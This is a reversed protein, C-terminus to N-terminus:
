NACADQRNRRPKRQRTSKRLKAIIDPTLIIWRPHHPAEQISELKGSLCWDAVTSVDVNLLEAVQRASFRGSRDLGPPKPQSPAYKRDMNYGWRVWQVKSETFSGGFGSTHGENNLIAAIDRDTHDIALERVRAVVDPHTRHADYSRPPRPVTLPTCTGTQWRVVLNIDSDRKTLTVDKILFRLLQKHIVHTTTPAHWLTPLDTALALIRQCQDASLLQPSKKPLAAYEAQLREVDALKSNWEHELTRAVLRNEPDVSSFRRKALDAEYRVRELRLQWQQDIQQAQSELQGLTALSIELQAPQIAELFVRTVASDIGDGRIFQCLPVGAQNHSQNCEYSPINGNKSYRVGMRRGCKGCLVIGQLLAAGERAAGRRDAARYTRNDDLQEQHHMFQQWTIYAPHVDHLVIPWEKLAVQRTHGKIRLSEGPLPRSRTQTRGYVYTGAYAPNHLVELVRGHHLSEWVLEGAHAKGWLRTPFRLHHEAFHKVVQYASGLQDFVRFLLKLACQVEEDPDLVIQGTSNLVFGAPPRFRLQGQEAKKLKGGALRSRLWHLEAESMTGQFGLLLRDNYQGPDYVSDEDIVLTDTLACIELLRYWDSCSRALRSVDLSMVAGANGLGVEAILMQFGDRGNTSAGSRGQDQDIVVIREDSWGLNRARKALDYQRATSGTHERVQILTSQRVYIFARRELHKSLIKSITNSLAM